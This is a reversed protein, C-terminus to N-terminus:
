RTEGLSYVRYGDGVEVPKSSVREDLRDDEGEPGAVVLYRAGQDRCSALRDELDAPGVIATTAVPELIVVAHAGAAAHAAQLAICAQTLRDLLDALRTRDRRLMRALDAIGVANAAATLPGSILAGVCVSDGLAKRLRAVTEIFVPVRSTLVRRELQGTELDDPTLHRVVVPPQGEECAAEAGLAEPEASLDLLTFIADPRYVEVARILAESQVGADRCARDHGLGALAVAHAGLLPAAPTHDVREFRLARRVRELGTM